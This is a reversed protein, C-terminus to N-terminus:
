IRQREKADFYQAIVEGVLGEHSAMIMDVGLRKLQAATKNLEKWKLHGALQEYGDDLTEIEVDSSFAPFAGDPRIMVVVVLHRKSLLAISECFQEATLPDTLDLLFVLLSRSRLHTALQVTAEQFDPAVKRAQLAVIADRILHFHSMGGKARIFHSVRDSFTLCGFQDGQREAIAGLLMASQLFKELQTTILYEGGQGTESYLWDESFSGEVPERLERASGRSHDIIVYVEQTKEIQYTRTVPERRRATAKWDIDSFEDGTQYERLQEFDRGKGQQRLIRAGDAGRVLFKSSLRKREPALDPYVHVTVHSAASSRVLWLRWRSVTEFHVASIVHTGRRLGIIPYTSSAKEGSQLTPWEVIRDGAARLNQGLELGFRIVALPGRSLNCCEVRLEQEAGRTGRITQPLHFEVGDLCHRSLLFDFLSLVVFISLMLAGILFYGASAAWVCLIVGPLVLLFALSLLRRSPVRRTM